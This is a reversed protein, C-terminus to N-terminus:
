LMSHWLNGPSASLGASAFGAMSAPPSSWGCGQPFGSPLSLSRAERQQLGISGPTKGDCVECWALGGENRLLFSPPPPPPRRRRRLLDGGRGCDRGARFGPPPSGAAARHRSRVSGQVRRVGTVGSRPETKRRFSCGSAARRALRARSNVITTVRSTNSSGAVGPAATERGTGSHGREPGWTGPERAKRGRECRHSWPEMGASWIKGGCGHPLLRTGSRPGGMHLCAECKRCM